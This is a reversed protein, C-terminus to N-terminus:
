TDGGLAGMPVTAPRMLWEARAQEIQAVILLSAVCLGASSAVRKLRESANGTHM